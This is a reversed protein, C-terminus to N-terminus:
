GCIHGGFRHEGSGSVPVIGDLAAIQQTRPATPVLFVVSPHIELQRFRGRFEIVNNTVLIWGEEEVVKLIDWDKSQHLGYHIVHTAEYGREHATEPLRVSLNEDILFRARSMCPAQQDSSEDTAQFEAM